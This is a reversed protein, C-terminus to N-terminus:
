RPGRWQVLANLVSVSASVGIGQGGLTFFQSMPFSGSAPFSQLCSAFPVVFSSITPHCWRSLPCSNSYARPTPSPCPLRTHQLGLPWSSDSVVSRSFQSIRARGGLCRPVEVLNSGKKPRWAGERDSHAPQAPYDSGGPFGWWGQTDSLESLTLISFQGKSKAVQLQQHNLHFGKWFVDSYIHPQSECECTLNLNPVFLDVQNTGQVWLHSKRNM